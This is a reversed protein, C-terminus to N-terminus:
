AENQSLAGDRTMRPLPVAPNKYTAPWRIHKCRTKLIWTYSVADGQNGGLVRYSTADQGVLFGVHGGGPRKFAAVAGFCEPSPKGFFEWNLAWYPNEGLKGPRPESPLALAIATDVYDGCWPLKAPSGLTRGESKLWASLAKHDRVEHLGYVALGAEIWPLDPLVVRVNSGLGM